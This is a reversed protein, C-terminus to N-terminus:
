LQLFRIEWHCVSATLQHKLKWRIYQIRFLFNPTTAYIFDAIVRRIKTKSIVVKIGEKKLEEMTNEYTVSM